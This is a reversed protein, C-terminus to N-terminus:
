VSGANSEPGAAVPSRLLTERIFQLYSGTPLQVHCQCSAWITESLSGVLTAGRLQQRLDHDGGCKRRTTPRRIRRLIARGDLQGM